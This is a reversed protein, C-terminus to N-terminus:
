FPFSHYASLNTPKGSFSCDWWWFALTMPCIGVTHSFSEPSNVPAVSIPLCRCYQIRVTNDYKIAAYSLKRKLFFLYVLHILSSLVIPRPSSILPMWKSELRWVINSRCIIGVSSCWFLNFATLQAHFFCQIHQIMYNERYLLMRIYVPNGGVFTFGLHRIKCRLLIFM